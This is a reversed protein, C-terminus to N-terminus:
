REVEHDSRAPKPATPTPREWPKNKTNEKSDGQELWAKDVALLYDEYVLDPKEESVQPAQALDEHFSHDLADLVAAREDQEIPDLQSEPKAHSPASVLDHRQIEIFEGTKITHFNDTPTMDFPLYDIKQESMM